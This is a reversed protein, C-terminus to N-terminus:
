APSFRKGREPEVDPIQRVAPAPAGLVTLLNRVTLFRRVAPPGRRGGMWRIENMSSHPPPPSRVARASCRIPHGLRRYFKGIARWESWWRSSQDPLSEQAYNRRLLKFCNLVTRLHFTGGATENTENTESLFHLMAGALGGALHRLACRIWRDHAKRLEPRAKRGECDGKTAQKAAFHVVNAHRGPGFHRV